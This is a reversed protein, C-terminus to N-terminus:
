SSSWCIRNHNSWLTLGQVNVIRAQQGARMPSSTRANWLEGRYRVVGQSQIDRIVEVPAGLM